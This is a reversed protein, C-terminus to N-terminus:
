FGYKLGLSVDYGKTYALYDVESGQYTITQRFIPNLLNKGRFTFSWHDAFEQTLNFDLSPAPQEYIDPLTYGAAYLYPGTVNYFLGAFFGNPQDDYSLGANIIYLPQGQLPRSTSYNGTNKVAIRQQEASLPVESQIYTANFNVSFNKLYEHCQDLRKRAEFEAGWLTCTSNNTYQYFQTGEGLLAITQEMPKKISKYFGSVAIVEGARPFYEIRMDYNNINSLKLNPNGVFITADSFDQTVVPGLEKFSPRAITQSWALRFNMEPMIQFTAAAAPLLDLQQINATADAPTVFLASTPGEVQINTNEFRTGGTFTLQPFLRFDTMVYSALVQQYANYYTGFGSSSNVATWSMYKGNGQGTPNVLGSRDENLFVNSWNQGNAEAQNYNNYEQPYNAAGWDYVFSAQNYDRQTTDIYFGTKFKSPNEKDEFYPVSINAIANYEGETLARQYRQLPARSETFAPDGPKLQNYDGNASDYISQFLRQDPENLQGQGFGGVWDVEIDRFTKIKHNGNLQVYGLQRETYQITTYQYEETPNLGPNNKNNGVQFDATDTAQQNFIVNIAVRQDKEPQVAFNFLGGWLVDESAKNDSLVIDPKIGGGQISYNGRVTEPNYINKHRYSFAGFTGVKQEPGYEVSDGGQMNFSYNPGPTSNTLGTVSSMQRMANNVNEAKELSGPESTNLKQPELGVLNANNIVSQPIERQNARFGFPGTGGGAYTLYDPNFTAQSNYEVTASAGFSPKDPFQKTRIDVSGGTFDGPQDPTFTKTTNIGELTPGPFLDVNIARKDPDSSPLRGGNMLTNVYRDSLGRVVVYKGDVVSTGVMRKLADGATSAGLKSILDAGITDLVATAGQREALLGTESTKELEGPVVLEEMEEVEAITEVRIDNFLGSAVSVDPMVRAVYGSSRATLVYVGPPVGSITFRGAEDTMAGFPTDQLAVSARAIPQGFDSDLVQGRIGGLGQGYVWMPLSSLVVFAFLRFSSALFRYPM